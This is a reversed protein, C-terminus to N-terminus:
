AIFVASQDVMTSWIVVIVVVSVITWSQYLCRLLYNTDNVAVWFRFRQKRSYDSVGYTAVSRNVTSASRARASIPRLPRKSRRFYVVSQLLLEVTIQTSCVFIDMQSPPTFGTPSHLFTQGCMNEIHHNNGSFPWMGRLPIGIITWPIAM